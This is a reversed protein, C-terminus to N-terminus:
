QFHALAWTFMEKEESDFWDEDNFGQLRNEIDAKDLKTNLYHSGFDSLKTDYQKKLTDYEEREIEDDTWSDRYYKGDKETPVESYSFSAQFSDCGSCSGYSGIVLKKEGAYDIVAGWSGQYSGFERYEIVKAGAAQLAESYGM